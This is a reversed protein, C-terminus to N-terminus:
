LSCHCFDSTPAFIYLIISGLSIPIIGYVMILIRIFGVLIKKHFTKKLPINKTAIFCFSPSDLLEALTRATVSWGKDEQCHEIGQTQDRGQRKLHPIGSPHTKPHTEPSTPHLNIHHDPIYVYISTYLHGYTKSLYIYIYIAIYVLFM